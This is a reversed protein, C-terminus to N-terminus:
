PKPVLSREVVEPDPDKGFVKGKLAEWIAELGKTRATEATAERGKKAEDSDAEAKTDVFVLSRVRDRHRRWFAFLVYGGHLRQGHLTVKVERDTWKDVDYTGHDWITM